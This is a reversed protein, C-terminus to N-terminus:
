HTIHKKLDWGMESCAARPSIVSHLQPLCKQATRDWTGMEARECAKQLSCSCPHPDSQHQTHVFVLKQLTDAHLAGHQWPTLAHEERLQWRQPKLASSHCPWWQNHPSVTCLDQPELLSPRLELMGLKGDGKVGGLGGARSM